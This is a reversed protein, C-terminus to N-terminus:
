DSPWLRWTREPVLVNHLGEGLAWLQSAYCRVAQEKRALPSTGLFGLEPSFGHSAWYGLATPVADPYLVRSPLDEYAWWELAPWCAAVHAAANAVKIHDPHVLGLPVLAARPEVEAVRHHISEAIDSVAGPGGPGGYQNDRYSLHVPSAAGLVRLAEVDERRRIAMAQRGGSFGCNRDYETLPMSPPPSGACVTVVLAGPWGGIAQGVSLVADDLHPSIVLMPDM